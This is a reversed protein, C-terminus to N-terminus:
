VGGREALIIYWKPIETLKERSFIDIIYLMLLILRGKVNFINLGDPLHFSFARGFLPQLKGQSISNKRMM